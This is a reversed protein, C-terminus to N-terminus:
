TKLRPFQRSHPLAPFLIINGLAQLWQIGIVCDRRRPYRTTVHVLIADCSICWMAYILISIRNMDTNEDIHPPPMGSFESWVTGVDQTNRTTVHVLLADCSICWMAYILISIRNTDTNEDVIHPPPMGSFELWVTLRRTGVEQINRKPVLVVLEDYRYIRMYTHWVAVPAYLQIRVVTVRTGIDQINRM